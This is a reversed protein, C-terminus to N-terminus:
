ADQFVHASSAPRQPLRGAVSLLNPPRGADYMGPQVGDCRYSTGLAAGVEVRPLAAAAM